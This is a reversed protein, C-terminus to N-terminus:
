SLNQISFAQKRPNELVLQAHTYIQWREDTNVSALAKVTVPVLEELWLGDLDVLDIRGGPYGPLAIVPREYLYLGSTNDLGGYGLIAEMKKEPSSVVLRPAIGTASLAKMARAQASSTLVVNFNGGITQIFADVSADLIPTTIARPAVDTNVGCQWNAFVARDIGAYVGVDSISAQIGVLGNAVAGGLAHTNMLRAIHGMRGMVQKEIYSEIYSANSAQFQHSALGTLEFTATYSGWGLQAQQAIFRSAAPAPDGEAFTTAPNGADVEAQWRPGQPSTPGRVKQAQLLLDIFKAEKTVAEVFAQPAFEQLINAIDGSTITM